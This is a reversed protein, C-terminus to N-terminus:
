LPVMFTGHTGTNGKSPRWEGVGGIGAADLLAVVSELSVMRPVYQLRLTASWNMFEARYRLDATGMGVRVMDERMRPEDSIIRVLSDPGEGYVFLAPRLETMKVGDYLRAADVMASKFAVAPFGPTGDPLRYISAEFDAEPNRVAKAAKTSSRGVQQQKDLMMQKAKQSWAHSILSTTGRIDIDITAREIKKIHIASEPRTQM